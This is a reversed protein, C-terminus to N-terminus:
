SEEHDFNTSAVVIEEGIQWDVDESVKFSTSNVGITTEITTWTRM